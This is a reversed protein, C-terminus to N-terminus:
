KKIVLEGVCGRGHARDVGNFAVTPQSGFGAGQLFTLLGFRRNDIRSQAQRGLDPEFAQRDTGQSLHHVHALRAHKRVEAGAFLQLDRHHALVVGAKLFLNKIRGYVSAM